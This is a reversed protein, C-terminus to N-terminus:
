GGVWQQLALWHQRLQELPFIYRQAMVLATNTFVLCM